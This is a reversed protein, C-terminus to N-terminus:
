PQLLRPSFHQGYIPNDPRQLLCAATPYPRAPRTQGVTPCVTRGSAIAPTAGDPAESRNMLFLFQPRNLWYVKATGRAGKGHEIEDETQPLSGREELRPMNREILQAIGHLAGLYSRGV